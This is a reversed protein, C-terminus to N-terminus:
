GANDRSLQDPDSRVIRCRTGLCRRLAALPERWPGRPLLRARETWEEAALLVIYADARLARHQFADDLVAVDAAAQKAREIGKVRDASVFVPISPNLLRHVTEEDGGYGRMVVAPSHGDAQLQRAIWAAIPPLIM